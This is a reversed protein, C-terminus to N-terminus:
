SPTHLYFVHNGRQNGWGRTQRRSKWDWWDKVNENLRSRCEHRFSPTQDEVYSDAFTTNLIAAM